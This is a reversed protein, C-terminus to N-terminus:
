GTISPSASPLIPSQTFLDTNGILLDNLNAKVGSTRKDKVVNNATYVGVKCKSHVDIGILAVCSARKAGNVALDNSLKLLM